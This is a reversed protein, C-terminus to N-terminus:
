PRKGWDKLAEGYTKFSGSASIGLSKLVNGFGCSKLMGTTSNRDTPIFYCGAIEYLYTEDTGSFQETGAEKAAKKMSEPLSAISSSSEGFSQSISKSNRYKETCPFFVKMGSKMNFARDDFPSFGFFINPDCLAVKEYLQGDVKLPSFDTSIRTSIKIQPNGQKQPIDYLWRLLLTPDYSVFTRGSSTWTGPSLPTMYDTFHEPLVSKGQSGKKSKWLNFMADASPIDEFNVRYAPLSVKSGDKFAMEDYYGSIEQWDFSKIDTMNEALFEQSLEQWWNLLLRTPAQSVIYTEPGISIIKGQPSAGQYNVLSKLIELDSAGSFLKKLDSIKSAVFYPRKQSQIASSGTIPSLDTFYGIVYEPTEYYVTDHYVTNGQQKEGTVKIGNKTLVIIDSRILDITQFVDAIERRGSMNGTRSLSGKVISTNCDATHAILRYAGYVQTAGPMYPVYFTRYVHKKSSSFASDVCSFLMLCVVFLCLLRNKM